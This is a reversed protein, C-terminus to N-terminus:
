PRFPCAGTTLVGHPGTFAGLSTALLVKSALFPFGETIDRRLACNSTWSGRFPLGSPDESVSVIMQVGSPSRIGATLHPWTDAWLDRLPLLFFERLLFLPTNGRGLHTLSEGHRVAPDRCAGQFSYSRSRRRGLVHGDVLPFGWHFTSIQRLIGQLTLSPLLFTSGM